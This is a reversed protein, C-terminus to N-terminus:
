QRIIIRMLHNEHVLIVLYQQIDPYRQIQSNRTVYSAKIPSYAVSQFSKAWIYNLDMKGAM